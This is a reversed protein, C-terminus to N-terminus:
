RRWNDVTIYWIDKYVPLRFLSFDNDTFPNNVKIFDFKTSSISGKSGYVWSENYDSRYVVNPKGFIVYIMGRDTKWGELYSTFFINAYTVRNYYSRILAKARNPNGGLGLWFDDIAEKKDIAATLDDFEKSTTLYRVPPIISEATQMLPFEDDFRYLTIGEKGSTDSQFHYFGKKSLDFLETENQNVALIFTSDAKYNFPKPEVLSFPPMAIPFNRQYYRVSLFKTTDNNLRIKMWNNETIIESCIVSNDVKLLMFDNRNAQSKKLFPIYKLTSTGKNIDFLSTILLYNNGKRAKFSFKKEFTSNSKDTLTDIYLCSFSDVLNSTNYSDYLQIMIKFSAFIFSSDKSKKYKLENLPFRLFLISVSDNQNFVMTETAPIHNDPDYQGSLNTITLKGPINCSGSYLIVMLIGIYWMGSFRAKERMNQLGNM